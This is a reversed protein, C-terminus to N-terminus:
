DEKTICSLKYFFWDGNPSYVTDNVFSTVHGCSHHQKLQVKVLTPENTKYETPVDGCIKYHFYPYINDSVTQLLISDPINLPVVHAVIEYYHKNCWNQSQYPERLYVLKYTEASECNTKVCSSLGIGSLLSVLILGLRLIKKM